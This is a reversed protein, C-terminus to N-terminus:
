IYIYKFEVGTGGMRSTHPRFRNEHIARAVCTMRDDNLPRSASCIGTGNWNWIGRGDVFVASMVCKFLM